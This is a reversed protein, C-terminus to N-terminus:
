RSWARTRRFIRFSPVIGEKFRRTTKEDNCGQQLCSRVHVTKCLNERQSKVQNRSFRKNTLFSPHLTTNYNTYSGATNDFGKDGLICWGKPFKLCGLRGWAQLFAKESARGFIAPTREIVAGSPLSWTLVCFASYNVKNSSQACNLHKNMCITQCLFDKGDIVGAVKKLDLKIYSKPELTELTCEQGSLSHFKM